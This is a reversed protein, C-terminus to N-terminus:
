RRPPGIARICHNYVDSVYLTKELGGPAGDGPFVPDTWGVVTTVTQDELM